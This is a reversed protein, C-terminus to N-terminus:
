AASEQQNRRRRRAAGAVGALGSGLLVMSVPEPTVNGSTSFESGIGGDTLGHASYRLSNYVDASTGSGSVDVLLHIPALEGFSNTSAAALSVDGSSGVGASWTYTAGDNRFLTKLTGDTMYNWVHTVAQFSFVTSSSSLIRIKDVLNNIYEVGNVVQNPVHFVFQVFDCSGTSTTSTCWADMSSNLEVSAHAVQPMATLAAAIGVILARRRSM